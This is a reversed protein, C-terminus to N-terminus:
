QLGSGRAPSRRHSLRVSAETRCKPRCPSRSSDCPCCRREPRWGRLHGFEMLTKGDTNKPGRGVFKCSTATWSGDQWTRCNREWPKAETVKVRGTELPEKGEPNLRITLNRSGDNERTRSTRCHSSRASERVKLNRRVRARGTLTRGSPGGIKRVRSAKGGALKQFTTM